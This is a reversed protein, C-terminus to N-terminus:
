QATMKDLSQKILRLTPIAAGFALAVYPWHEPKIVPQALPLVEAQLMSLASLAVSALVSTARWLNRWNDALGWSGDLAPQKFLRAVIFALALAGVVLAATRPTVLAPFFFLALAFALLATAVWISWYRHANRIDPILQLNLLNM